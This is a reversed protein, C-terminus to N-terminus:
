FNWNSFVIEEPLVQSEPIPEYVVNQSDENVLITNFMTKLEKNFGITQYDTDVLSFQSGIIQAYPTSKTFTIKKATKFFQGEYDFYHFHDKKGLYQLEEVVLKEEYMSLNRLSEIDHLQTYIRNERSSYYNPFGFIIRRDRILPNILSYEELYASYQDHKEVVYIGSTVLEIIFLLIFYKARKWRAYSLVFILVLFISLGIILVIPLFVNYFNEAAIWTAFSM